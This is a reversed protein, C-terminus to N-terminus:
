LQCISLLLHSVNKWKHLTIANSMKVSALGLSYWGCGGLQNESQLM